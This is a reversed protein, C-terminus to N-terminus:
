LCATVGGDVYLIHGTVFSAADSCLFVAPGGLEDVRGWRRLPTRGELWGSFTADAVLAANLDTRFYGPALGNVRLGHPGWDTAMGKTLMKLGGKSAAYPAIGPRTLESQVSCVNVIVGRRRAIMGRAVAQGVRFAATLNTAIIQDFLDPPYSELAGRRQIGANNILIDLPGADAEVAAIGAALTEADALVDFGAAAVDLGEAAMAARAGALRTPDRGNLVVRAGARGLARALGLGIGASSGTILATRGTLDFGADSM